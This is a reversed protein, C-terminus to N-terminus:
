SNIDSPNKTNINIDIHSLDNKITQLWTTTPRGVKNKVPKFCERLAQKVPADHHLRLIHGLFTFRRRKIVSSWKEANTIAYLKNNSVRRPWKIGLAKRLLRRQFADIKSNSDDTVGWIESNYLFVSSIYISFTRLKIDNSVVKSEFVKTYKNMTQLAQNKRNQIDKKTGM